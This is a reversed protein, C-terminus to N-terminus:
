KQQNLIRKGLSYNMQSVSRRLEASAEAQKLKADLLQRNAELVPLYSIDGTGYSNISLSAAQELGPIVTKNWLQYSNVALEYRAYAESVTLAVRQRLAIYNHSAQEIEAKARSIRGQNWSFIPIETRIGLDYTQPIPKEASPTGAFNQGNLVATLVAIRSREWGLRHGAAEIANRSAVLEPQNSFAIDLLEERTVNHNMVPESKSLHITTDTPLGLLTNFRYKFVSTDQQVRMLLDIANASDMRATIAELESIDGNRLRSSALYSMQMRIQASEALIKSRIRALSLDAYAVQVDRILTFSRQVMNEAVKAADRKAAAIRHPRQWLQDLYFYMYAQAVIGGNPSLYQLLPNPIIGADKVDAAAFSIAALDAQFQENNWLAITVAEDETIGDALSAGPPLEFKGAPKQQTMEFETQRKVRDSVYSRTYPNRPNCGALFALVVLLLANIKM